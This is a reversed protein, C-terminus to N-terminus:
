QPGRARVVEDTVLKGDADFYFTGDITVAFFPSGQTPTTECLYSPFLSRVETAKIKALLERFAELDTV